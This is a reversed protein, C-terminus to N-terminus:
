LVPVYVANFIFSFSSGLMFEANMSNLSLFTLRLGGLFFAVLSSRSGNSVFDFDLICIVGGLFLSCRFTVKLESNIVAFLLGSFPTSNVVFRNTSSIFALHATFPDFKFFSLSLVGIGVLSSMSNYLFPSTDSSVFLALHFISLVLISVYLLHEM